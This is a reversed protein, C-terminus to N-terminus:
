RSRWRRPELGLQRAKYVVGMGGRGLVGLVKYGTIELLGESEVGSEVPWRDLQTAIGQTRSSPSQSQTGLAQHLELQLKLEQATSPSGCSTSRWRRGSAWRKM